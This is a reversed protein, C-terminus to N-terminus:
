KVLTFPLTEGFPVRVGSANHHGNGGYKQALKALDITGDGRLSLHWTNHDFYWVIAFPARKKALRHGLESRLLRPANVALIRHGDFDVEQAQNVFTEYLYELYEAYASGKEIINQFEVDNQMLEVLADFTEFDRFPITSLFAGVEKWNPLEHRWIDNDQIYALLRPLPTNPHFYSWAIGSGSRDNDFVYEKMAEVDAKTGIHHDLIVLRQVSKQIALLVDKAYSFDVLYVDKGDLGQPTPEGHFVPIYTADDGFKKWAAYAAGFGDPCNSHYLVAIDKNKM